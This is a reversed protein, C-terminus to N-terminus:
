SNLFEDIIYEFFVFILDISDEFSNDEITNQKVSKEYIPDDTPKGSNYWSDAAESDYESCESAAPLVNADLDGIFLSNYNGHTYFKMDNYEKYNNTDFKDDYALNNAKRFTLSKEGGNALEEGLVGFFYGGGYAQFYGSSYVNAGSNVYPINFNYITEDPNAVFSEEVWGTAFCTHIFFVSAGKKFPPIFKGKYDFGFLNLGESLYSKSTWIGVDDITPIYYPPKSISGNINNYNNNNYYGLDGGHGLFIMADAGYMGKIINEATANEGLLFVVPYGDSVLKQYILIAEQRIEPLDNSSDGVILIHANVSAITSFIILIFTIIILSKRTLSKNKRIDNTIGHKNLM